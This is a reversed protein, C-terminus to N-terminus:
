CVTNNLTVSVPDFTGCLEFQVTDALTIVGSRSRWPSQSRDFYTLLTANWHVTYSVDTQIVENATPSMFIGDVDTFMQLDFKPSDYPKLILNSAHASISPLKGFADSAFVRNWPVTWEVSVSGSPDTVFQKELLPLEATGGVTLFSFYMVTTELGIFDQYEFVLTVTDGPM